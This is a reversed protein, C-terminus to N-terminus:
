YLTPYVHKHEYWWKLIDENSVDEPPTTTYHMLEDVTAPQVARYAPLDDFINKTASTNTKDEPV